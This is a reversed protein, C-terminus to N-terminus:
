YGDTIGFTKKQPPPVSQIPSIQSEFSHMKKLKFGRHRACLPQASARRHNIRDGGVCRLQRLQKHNIKRRYDMFIWLILGPQTKSRCTHLLWKYTFVNATAFQLSRNPTVGLFPLTMSFWWGLVPNTANELSFFFLGPPQSNRLHHHITLSVRRCRLPSTERWYFLPLTQSVRQMQAVRRATPLSKFNSTSSTFFLFVVLILWSSVVLAEMLGSNLGGLGFSLLAM